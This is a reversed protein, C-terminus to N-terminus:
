ARVIEVQLPQYKAEFQKVNRSFSPTLPAGKGKVDLVRFTRSRLDFFEFDYVAYTPGLLKYRPHIVVDVISGDDVLPRLREFYFVSEAISDFSAARGGCELCRCCREGKHRRRKKAAYREEFVRMVAAQQHPNVLSMWEAYEVGDACRGSGDKVM